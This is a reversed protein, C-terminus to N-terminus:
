GAQGHERAHNVLSKLGEYTQAGVMGHGKAVFTPVGTVGMQRSRTWDGDLADSYSRSDLVERADKGSLGVSEALEVLVDVDGVNKADVFYARFVADHFKDGGAQEEAWIGLEQALRSNYTHTRNGYPLGEMQMRERLQVQMNSLIEERGAFLKEMTQGEAPTEPHLPFHIWKIVVNEEKVLREISM